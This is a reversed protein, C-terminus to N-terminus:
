CVGPLILGCGCFKTCPSLFLHLCPQHLGVCGCSWGAMSNKSEEVSSRSNSQWRTVGRLQAICRYTPVCAGPRLPHYPKFTVFIRGATVRPCAGPGMNELCHQRAVGAPLILTPDNSSVLRHLTPLDLQDCHNRHPASGGM